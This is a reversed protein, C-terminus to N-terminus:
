LPGARDETDEYRNQELSFTRLDEYEREILGINHEESHVLQPYGWRATDTTLLDGADAAGESPMRAFEWHGPLRPDTVKFLSLPYWGPKGTDDAILVELSAEGLSMAYVRYERGVSVDFVTHETGFRDIEHVPLDSGRDGLCEVKM